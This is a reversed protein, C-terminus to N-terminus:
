FLVVYVIVPLVFFAAFGGVGIGLGRLSTARNRRIFGAWVMAVGFAISVPTAIRIVWDVITTWAPRSEMTAEGGGLAVIGVLLAGVAEGAGGLEVFAVAYLAGVAGALTAAIAGLLWLVRSQSM